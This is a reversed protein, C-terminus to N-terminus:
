YGSATTCHTWFETLSLARVRAAALEIALPLGDLRTCIEGVAAVNDDTVAFEPRARRARDSFLELAEDRLSLSPLRWSM